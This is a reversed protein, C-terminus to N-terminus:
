IKNPMDRLMGSLLEFTAMYGKRCSPHYFDIITWDQSRHIRDGLNTM